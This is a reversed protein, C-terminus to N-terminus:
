KHTYFGFWVGKEDARVYLFAKFTKFGIQQLVRINRGTETVTIIVSVFKTFKNMVTKNGFNHLCKIVTM